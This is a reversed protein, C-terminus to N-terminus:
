QKEEKIQKEKGPLKVIKRMIKINQVEIIIHTPTFKM